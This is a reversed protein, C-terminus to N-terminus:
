AGFVHMGGVKLDRVLHRLTDFADSDTSTFTADLSPVLLQGIKEDLTMKRLTQEVWRAAAADLAPTAPQTAILVAASSGAVVCVRLWWFRRDAIASRAINDRMPPHYCTSRAVIVPFPDRCARLRRRSIPLACTQVGTVILDRIGDEAQFFFFSFIFIKSM